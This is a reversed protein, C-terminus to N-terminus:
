IEATPRIEGVKHLTSFDEEICGCGIACLADDSHLGFWSAVIRRGDYESSGVGTVTEVVPAVAVCVVGAGDCHRGIGGVDGVKLGRLADLINVPVVYSDANDITVNDDCASAVFRYTEKIAHPAEDMYFPLWRLTAIEDNRSGSNIEDLNSGM